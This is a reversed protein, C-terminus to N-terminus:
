QLTPCAKILQAIATVMEPSLSKQMLQKKIYEIIVERLDESM